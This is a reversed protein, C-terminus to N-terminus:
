QLIDQKKCIELIDKTSEKAFDEATLYGEPIIGTLASNEFEV